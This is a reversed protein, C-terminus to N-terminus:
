IGGLSTSVCVYVCLYYLTEEYLCLFLVYNFKHNWLKELVKELVKM